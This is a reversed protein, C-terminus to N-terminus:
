LGSGFHDISIHSSWSSGNYTLVNGNVDVATCLKASPCSISTPQGQLADILTGHSWGAAANSDPSAAASPLEAAFMASTVAFLLLAAAFLRVAAPKLM